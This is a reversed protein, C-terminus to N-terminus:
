VKSSSSVTDSVEKPLHPSQSFAEAQMWQEGLTMRLEFYDAFWLTMTQPPM